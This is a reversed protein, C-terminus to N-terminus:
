RAFSSVRFNCRELKWKSFPTHQKALLYLFCTLIILQNITISLSYVENVFRDRCADFLVLCKPV